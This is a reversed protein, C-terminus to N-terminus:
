SNIVAFHLATRKRINKSGSVWIPRGTKLKQQFCAEPPTVKISLIGYKFRNTEKSYVLLTFM